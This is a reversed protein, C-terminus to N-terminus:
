RVDRLLKDSLRDLDRERWRSEDRLRDRKRDLERIEDRIQYRRKDSTKKNRLENELTVIQSDISDIEKRKAHVRYAAENLDRFDRDIAAACVGEYRRGDLGERVANSLVCYSRLGEKRGEAYRREDPKVGHKGCAEHHDALRSQSYGARGDKRGLEQWDATRCEDENLTACGALTLLLLPLLRIMAAEKPPYPMM